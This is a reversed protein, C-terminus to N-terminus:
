VLKGVLVFHDSQEITKIISKFSQTLTELKPGVLRDSEIWVEGEFGKEKLKNLVSAYLAHEKYPPDLYLIADETSVKQYTMEKEIWKIADSGTICISTSSVHFSKLFKASNDKLTLQAQRGNDNLFIQEAGRSLAEFGMAGSGAFLDIFTYGELNQRWDFLKRRVLVSTPRTTDSKPTALPFGKALGGLIKISM